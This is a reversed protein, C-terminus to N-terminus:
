SEVQVPILMTFTAGQGPKGEAWIKGKHNEIIKKCIALGLGTGPYEHKGHLRQFLEFIKTAFEQEFGIGNDSIIVQHYSKEEDPDYFPKVEIHIVPATGPKHYKISNLLLNELLQKFQFPIVELEPLNNYNITVGTEDWDEKLEQSIENILVQMDVREFVRPASNTRSFTLLDDILVQMRECASTMRNLYAKGTDSLNDQEKELIRQSFTQIKRLPEQLDHSAVYSFSTLEENTREFVENKQKLTQNLQKLRLTNNKIETIDHIMYLIGSIKGKGSRLPLIFTEYYGEPYGFINENCIVEQGSLALELKTKILPENFHPFVEFVSKGQVQEKKKAFFDESKKNWAILQFENNFAAIIDVSNEILLEALSTREELIHRIQKTITIDKLIGKVINHENHFINCSFTKLGNQAHLNFEFTNTNSIGSANIFQNIIYPRDTEPVMELLAETTVIKHESKLGILKYLNESCTIKRTEKDYQWCGCDSASEIIHLPIYLENNLIIESALGTSKDNGRANM